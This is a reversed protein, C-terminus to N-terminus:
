YHFNLQNHLFLIILAIQMKQLNGVPHDSKAFKKPVIKECIYPIYCIQGNKVFLVDPRGTRLDAM